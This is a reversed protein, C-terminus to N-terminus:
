PRAEESASEATATTGYEARYSAFCHGISGRQIGFDDALGDSSRGRLKRVVGALGRFLNLLRVLFKPM